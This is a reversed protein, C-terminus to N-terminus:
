TRGVSTLRLIGLASRFNNIIRNKSRLRTLQKLLTMPRFYFSKYALKQYQRIKARTVYRTHHVPFTHIGYNAYTFDDILGDREMQEYIESGPYPKLIHFKAIHLDLEKAFAITQAMTQENDDPFGLM